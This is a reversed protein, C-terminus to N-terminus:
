DLGLHKRAESWPIPKEGKAKARALAQRALRVDIRDMEELIKLDEASVVAGIVKGNRRIPVRKGNAQVRKATVVLDSNAKQTM